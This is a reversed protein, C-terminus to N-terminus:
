GEEFQKDKRTQIPPLCATGVGINQSSSMTYSTLESRQKGHYSSKTQAPSYALGASIVSAGDDDGDVGKGVCYGEKDGDTEGVKSVM